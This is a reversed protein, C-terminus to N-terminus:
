AFTEIYLAKTRQFARVYGQFYHILRLPFFNDDCVMLRDSFTSLFFCAIAKLSELSQLINRTVPDIYSIADIEDGFFEVRIIRDEYAPGIEM